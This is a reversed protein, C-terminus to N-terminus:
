KKELFMNQCMLKLYTNEKIYNQNSLYLENLQKQYEIIKKNNNETINKDDYKLNTIVNLQKMIDNYKKKYNELDNILIDKNTKFLIDILNNNKNNDYENLNSKIEDNDFLIELDQEKIFQKIDPEEFSNYYNFVYKLLQYM